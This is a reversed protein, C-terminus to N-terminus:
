GVDDLTIQPKPQPLGLKHLLKCIVDQRAPSYKFNKNQNLLQVLERLSRNAEGLSQCQSQLVEIQQLAQLHTLKKTEM